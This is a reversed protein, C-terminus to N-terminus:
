LKEGFSNLQIRKKLPLGWRKNWMETDKGGLLGIIKGDVADSQRKNTQYHIHEFVISSASREDKMLGMELLNLYLENDAFYHKYDPHFIIKNMRELCKFTMTPMSVAPPRVDKSKVGELDFEYHQIGDRIMLAGDWDKFQEILYNDWNEPCEVDDCVVIVIDKENLKLDKTLEYIPRVVGLNDGTVRIEMSYDILGQSIEDYNHVIEDKEATTNVAVLTNIYNDGSSRQIWTRHRKIFMEPRATAWLIQIM